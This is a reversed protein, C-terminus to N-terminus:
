QVAGLAILTSIQAATLGSAGAIKMGAYPGPIHITELCVGRQMDWLRMTEDSSGSLLLRGDPSFALGTVRDEHGALILWPQGAAQGVNALDWLRITRDQSASALLVGHPHFALSQVTGTHGYLVRRCEGSATDWLRVTQDDSSSALLSGDPSFCLGWAEYRHGALTRLRQRGKIDWLYILMDNCSAALLDNHPHFALTCLRRPHQWTDLMQGTQVDWLRLNGGYGSSALIHGNASFVLSSVQKAHPALKTLLQGTSADWLCVTGDYGGSALLEGDPSFTVRWVLGQHGRLVWRERHDHANWIRASGDEVACAYCDGKPSFAVSHILRTHGQILRLLHGNQVNWLRVTHDAGGSALTQGDPTFAVSTVTQTHGHLTKLREGTGAHWLHITRDAGSSAILGGGPDIALGRVSGAHGAMTRICLGDALRWLRVTQDEGASALYQSDPSFALRRVPGRHGHWRQQIQPRQTALTAAADWVEIVEDVTIALWRGDPSWAITEVRGALEDSSFEEAGTQGNWLRLCDVSVTALIDGTPNFAVALVDYTYGQFTKLPRSHDSPQRMDWLCATRDGSASALRAGDPSFALHNLFDEHGKLVAILHGTTTQWLWILSDDTAAALTQGDPSFVVATIASLTHTFASCRLDTNNFNVGPAAQGQLDAQWVCLGSFDYGRCDVGLHLLLNLINGGAYGPTRPAAQQLALLLRRFREELGAQGWRTALREAIPQLILRQQSQRIYARAQAKLLAYRNFDSERFGEPLLAPAANPALAALAQYVQNVLRNTTYEIIVNQLTFEPGRQEILSRRGLSRFAALLEGASQTQVLNEGLAQPTIAEREIALWTMIEVELPSLRAFQQDLVDEMDDFIAHEQNLFPAIHGGFLARITEAILRLALPNGSYRQLLQGLHEDTGSLGEEHLIKQGAALSLGALQQSRVPGQGRELRSFEQPKERGTLLLCSQHGSEGLRQLLQGYAEYGPRYRGARDGAQMISEANDLILLCRRRRLRSLLLRLQGDLSDPLDLLPPDALFVLWELLIEALPPTNLLSRWIVFEFHDTVANVVQATLSTKGVGGMGVVAVLRCRDRTLWATLERQEAERGYFSTAEPMEGPDIRAGSAAQGGKIGGLPRSSSPPLVPTTQQGAQGQGQFPIQNAKIAEYLATTEPAPEVGLEEALIRHCALYQALAESRRGSLALLRMLRRHSAERLSDLELQRWAVQQALEYDAREEYQGLLYELMVLARRRLEERRALVWEEFLDSDAGYFGALFDGTYYAVAQALAEVAVSASSQASFAAVDLWYDGAPNFQLTQPTILLFPPEAQRDGIAQRLRLLSQSLNHRAAPEPLDPWLLGALGERRHPRDAEVALYTLLARAKDSEFRTVPQGDLHVQFAGFLSIILRAM